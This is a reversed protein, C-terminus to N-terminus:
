SPKFCSAKKWVMLNLGISISTRDLHLVNNVLVACCYTHRIIHAVLLRPYMWGKAVREKALSSVPLLAARIPQLSPMILCHCLAWVPIMPGESTVIIVMSAYINEHFLASMYQM